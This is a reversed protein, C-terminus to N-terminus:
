VCRYAFSHHPIVGVGVMCPGRGCLRSSPNSTTSPGLLLEGLGRGVGGGEGEEGGGHGCVHVGWGVYKADELAEAHKDLKEYAAARNAYLLHVQDSPQAVAIAQTYLEVAAAFAGAHMQENGPRADPLVSVMIQEPAVEAHTYATTQKSTSPHQQTQTYTYTYTYTYAYTYTYTHTSHCFYVERM